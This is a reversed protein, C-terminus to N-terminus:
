SCCSRNRCLQNEINRLYQSYAREFGFAFQDFVQDYLVIAVFHRILAIRNRREQFVKKNRHEFWEAARKGHEGYARLESVLRTSDTVSLPQSPMTRTEKAAWSEIDMGLQTFELIYYKEERLPEQANSM